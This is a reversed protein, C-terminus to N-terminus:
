SIGRIKQSSIAEIMRVTQTIPGVDHV